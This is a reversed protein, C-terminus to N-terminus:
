LIDIDLCPRRAERRWCVRPESRGSQAGHWSRVIGVGDALTAIIAALKLGPGTLAVAIVAAGVVALFPIFGLAMLIVIV